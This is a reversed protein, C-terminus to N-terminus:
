HIKIFHEIASNVYIIHTRTKYHNYPNYYHNKLERAADEKNIVGASLAIKVVEKRNARTHGEM